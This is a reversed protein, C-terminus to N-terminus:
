LAPPVTGQHIGLDKFDFLGTSSVPFLDLSIQLFMIVNRQLSHLNRNNGNCVVAPLRQGIGQLTYQCLRILLYFVDHYVTGRLVTGHIQHFPVFREKFSFHPIDTFGILPQVIRHVLSHPHNRPLHYTDQIRIIKIRVPLYQLPHSIHKLFFIHIRYVSIHM